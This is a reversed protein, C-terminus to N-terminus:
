NGKVVLRNNKDQLPRANMAYISKFAAVQEASASLPTNMMHWNVGESCPPTTLSGMFRSYSRTNPLLRKADIRLGEESHEGKTKPMNTWVKELEANHAGEEFMVGVVALNGATNAHVFHLELPFSKGDITHESPTHFHFQLLSYAEGDVFLSGAGAQDVQITHGNNIVKLPVSNYGFGLNPLTGGIDTTINFPSQLRGAKCMSFEDSMEGWHSPGHEGDYEWHVAKSGHGDDEKHQVEKHETDEHEKADPKSEYKVHATQMETENMQSTGDTQCATMLVLGLTLASAGLFKNKIIM